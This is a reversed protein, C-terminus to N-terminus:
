KGGIIGVFDALPLKGYQLSFNKLCHFVKFLFEECKFFDVARFGKKKM